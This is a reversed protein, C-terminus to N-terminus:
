ISNSTTINNFELVQHCLHDYRAEYLYIDKDINVKIEYIYDGNKSQYKSTYKLRKSNYNVNKHNNYINTIIANEILFLQYEKNNEQFFYSNDLITAKAIIALFIALYCLYIGLISISGKNNIMSYWVRM